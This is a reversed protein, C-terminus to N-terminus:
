TERVSRSFVSERNGVWRNGLGSEEYMGDGGYGAVARDDM